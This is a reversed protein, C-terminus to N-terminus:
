GIYEDEFFVHFIDSGFLGMNAPADISLETKGQPISIAMKRSPKLMPYLSDRMMGIMREKSSIMVAM